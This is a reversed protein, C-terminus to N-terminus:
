LVVLVKKELDNRVLEEQQLAQTLDQIRKEAEEMLNEHTSVCQLNDAKCLEVSEAYREADRALEAKLQKM